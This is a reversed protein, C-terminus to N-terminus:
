LIVVPGRFPAVIPIPVVSFAISPPDDTFTPPIPGPAGHAFGFVLLWITKWSLEVVLLPLMQLPYRLGVLAVLWVGGLLAPMVGRAMATEAILAPAYFAALGVVLALYTARLLTHHRRSPGSANGDLPGAPVTNAM